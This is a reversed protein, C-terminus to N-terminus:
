AADEITIIRETKEILQSMANLLTTKGSGTGGSIIINLRCRAAIELARALQPSASGYSVFKEFGLLTRAFKRISICVGKLSLPPIIVNVRSGDSLRADLMPSSEDVRRGISSAIRQAVHLVQADSRFHIDSLELKGRREAYVQNPGNVLIDAVDDDRLLPELPGLGIMDDVIRMALAHQEAQNVLLQREDAVQAVLEDVRAMLEPQTMRVAVAPDIRTLIQDYIIGSPTVTEAGALAQHLFSKAAPPISAAAPLVSAPTATPEGRLRSKLGM